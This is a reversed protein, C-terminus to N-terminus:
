HFFNTFSRIVNRVTRLRLAIHQSGEEVRESWQLVRQLVKIFLILVTVVFALLILHMVTIVYLLWAPILM